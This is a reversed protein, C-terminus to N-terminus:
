PAPIILQQGVQIRNPDSINNRQQIAQVTVGYQRSISYLTEGSAVTHVREGGQISMAPSPQTPLPSPQGEGPQQTPAITPPPVTPVPPLPTATSVGLTSNIIERSIQEINEIEESEAANQLRDEVWGPLYVDVFWGVVVLAILAGLFYLILQVPGKALIDKKFLLWIVWAGGLILPVFKVLELINMRSEEENGRSDGPPHYSSPCYGAPLFAVPDVFSGNRKDFVAYHLALTDSGVGGIAGIWEGREVTGPSATQSRLGSLWVIWEDNEVQLTLHGWQDLYRGLEGGMPAVVLSPASSELDLGPLLGCAPATAQEVPALLPSLAPRLAPEGDTHPAAFCDGVVAERCRPAAALESPVAGVRVWTAWLRDRAEQLVLNTPLLISPEQISPGAALQAQIALHVPWAGLAQLRVIRGTETRHLMNQHAADYGNMVYGSRDAGIRTNRGANYYLYCRKLVEPDTTTYSVEPCHAKFAAAGLRLQRAVEQADIAGPTFCPLQGSTVATHLGMIGECNSPNVAQLGGEKYWLVLPVLPPVDEVRAVAMAVPAWRAVQEQQAPTLTYRSELAAHTSVVVTLPLTFALLTDLSGRLVTLLLRRGEVKLLPAIYYKGWEKLWLPLRTLLSM